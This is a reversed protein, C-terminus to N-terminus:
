MSTLDRKVTALEHKLVIGSLGAATFGKIFSAEDFGRLSDSSFLYNNSTQAKLGITISLAIILLSFLSKKMNSIKFYSVLYISKNELFAM